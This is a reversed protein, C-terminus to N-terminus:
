MEEEFIFYSHWIKRKSARDPSPWRTWVADANSRRSYRRYSDGAGAEKEAGRERYRLCEIRAECRSRSKNTGKKRRRDIGRSAAVELRDGIQVQCRVTINEKNNTSNIRNENEVRFNNNEQFNRPSLQSENEWWKWTENATISADIYYSAVKRYNAYLKVQM